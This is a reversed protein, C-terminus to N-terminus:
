GGPAAPNPLPMPTPMGQPSPVPLPPMVPRPPQLLPHIVTIYAVSVVLLGMLWLISRRSSQSRQEALFVDLKRETRHLQTELHQLQALTQQESTSFWQGLEQRQRRHLRTLRDHLQHFQYDMPTSAPPAAATPPSEWPNAEVFEAEFIPSPHPRSGNTPPRSYM